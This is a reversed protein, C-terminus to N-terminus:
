QQRITRFLKGIESLPIEANQTLNVGIIAGFAGEERERLKLHRMSAARFGRQPYYRMWLVITLAAALGLTLALSRRTLSRLKFNFKVMTAPFVLTVCPRRRRLLSLPCFYLPTNPHPTLTPNFASNRLINCFKSLMLKSLM